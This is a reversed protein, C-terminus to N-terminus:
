PCHFDPHHTVLVGALGLGLLKEVAERINRMTPVKSVEALVDVLKMGVLLQFQQLLGQRLTIRKKHYMEDITDWKKGIGLGRAAQTLAPERFLTKDVDFSVQVFKPTKM